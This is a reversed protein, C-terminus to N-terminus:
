PRARSECDETPKQYGEIWLQDLLSHLAAKESSNLVGDGAVIDVVGKVDNSSFLELARSVVSPRSCWYVRNSSTWVDILSREPSRRSVSSFVGEAKGITGVKFEKDENARRRVKIVVNGIEFSDWENGHVPSVKNRPGVDTVKRFSCLDGSRWLGNTLGELALSRREFPPSEYFLSGEAMHVIDFGMDAAMKILGLRDDVATPRTLWPLVSLYLIGDLELIESARCLFAEYYDLYWPPDAMVVKARLGKVSLPDFLDGQVVDQYGLRSLREGVLRNQDVLTAGVKRNCLAMFLTPAGLVVVSASCNSQAQMDAALSDATEPAFRWDFDIPHPAPLVRTIESSEDEQVGLSMSQARNTDLHDLVSQAPSDGEEALRRLVCRVDVPYAGGCQRVISWFEVVGRSLLSVARRTIRASYENGGLESPDVCHTIM